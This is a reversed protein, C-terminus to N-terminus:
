AQYRQRVQDPTATGTVGIQQITISAVLNAIAAAEVASAGAAIAAAIAASASDGAGVIDIPGEVPIPEVTQSNWIGHTLEVVTIGKEGQTCFVTGDITGALEALGPASLATSAIQAERENPKIAVHRFLGIRKRSDALIFKEPDRQAMAALHDRSQDTIVGCNEESVQDLVVWADVQPWVEELAALLQRQLRDPLPERNKLDLRNLERPPEGPMHLMPKTYTPTRRLPSSLLWQRDVSPIADLLQQLEFSEGDQGIVSVPVVRGVNLAVLNSLVTGAAGPYSRVQTIQYADLGTELSPETLTGDIDLYRDLFLDGFIGLTLSPFRSLIEDLRKQTLPLSHPM